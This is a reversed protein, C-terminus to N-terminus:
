TELRSVLKEVLPPLNKSIVALHDQKLAVVVIACHVERPLHRMQRSEEIVGVVEAETLTTDLEHLTPLFVCHEDLAFRVEGVAVEEVLVMRELHHVGVPHTDVVSVSVIHHLKRFSRPSLVLRQNTLRETTETNVIHRIHLGLRAVPVMGKCFKSEELIAEKLLLCGLNIAVSENALVALDVLPSAM